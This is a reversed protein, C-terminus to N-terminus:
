HSRHSEDSVFDALEIELAWIDESPQVMRVADKETVILPRERTWPELTITRHDPFDFRDVVHAGTSAVTKGFAEPNGIASALDVPRDRFYDPDVREGDILRRFAVPSHRTARIPIGPALTEIEHLTDPLNTAQDAHTVVISTARCLAATDERLIGRPLLHGNGFPNTADVLVIDEDRELRLYQFGDDLILTDCGHREIAHRAGAVRDANKIVIVGPVRTLILAGEDGLAEFWSRDGLATSDIPQGGSPAGYGRTLVAVRRGRDIEAQAREIVAPTKGTGGATINGISIVKADVRTKPQRRRRWMGFRQVPEGLCLLLDLPRPLPEGRRVREAITSRSM